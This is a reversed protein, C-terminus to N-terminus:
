VMKTVIDNCFNIYAGRVFSVKNQMGMRICEVLFGEEFLKRAHQVVEKKDAQSEFDPSYFDNAELLINLLNILHVQMANNGNDIAQQLADALPNVVLHTLETSV